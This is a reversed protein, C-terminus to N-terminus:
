THPGKKSGSSISNYQKCSDLDLKKEFHPDYSKLQHLLISPADIVCVIFGRCSILFRMEAVM